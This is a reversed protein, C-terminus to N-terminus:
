VLANSGLPPGDLPSIGVPTTGPTGKDIDEATFVAIVGDHGETANTDISEIRAHSYQSRLIAAHTM